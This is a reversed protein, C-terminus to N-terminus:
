HPQEQTPQWFSRPGPVDIYRWAGSSTTAPYYWRLVARFGYMRKCPANAYAVTALTFQNTAAPHPNSQWPSGYGCTNAGGPALGESVLYSVAGEVPNWTWTCSQLGPNATPQCAATVEPPVGPGTEATGTIVAIPSSGQKNDAYARIEYNLPVGPVMHDDIIATTKQTEALYLLPYGPVGHYIQYRVADQVPTWDIAVSSSSRAKSKM